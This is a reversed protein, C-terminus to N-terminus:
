KNTKAKTVKKDEVAQKSRVHGDGREMKIDESINSRSITAIHKQAAEIKLRLAKLKDSVSIGFSEIEKKKYVTKFKDFFVSETLYILDIFNQGILIKRLLLFDSSTEDNIYIKGWNYERVRLIESGKQVVDESAIISLPIKNDIEEKQRYVSEDSHTFVPPSFVNIQHNKFFQKYFSRKENLEENTYCDSKAMIPILNCVNSLYKLCTLEEMSLEDSPLLFVCAHIRYDRDKNNMLNEHTEIYNSNSQEIVEKVQNIDLEHLTTISVNLTINDEELAASHIVIGNKRDKSIIHTNFISNILTKTGLGRRGIFLVNLFFGKAISEERVLDAYEAFGITTNLEVKKTVSYLITSM